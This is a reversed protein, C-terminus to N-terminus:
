EKVLLKGLGIYLGIALIRIHYMYDFVYMGILTCKHMYVYTSNYGQKNPSSGSTLFNKKKISVSANTDEVAVVKANAILARAGTVATAITTVVNDKM